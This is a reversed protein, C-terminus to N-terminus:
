ELLLRLVLLVAAVVALPLPTTPEQPSRLVLERGLVVLGALGALIQPVVGAALWLWISL